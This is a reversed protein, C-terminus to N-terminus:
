HITLLIILLCASVHRLPSNVDQAYTPCLRHLVGDDDEGGAVGGEGDSGAAAAGEAGGAEDAASALRSPDGTGGRSPPASGPLSSADAAAGGNNGDGFRRANLSSFDALGGGGGPARKEGLAGIGAEAEAGGGGIGASTAVSEERMSALDALLKGLLRAAITSGVRLKDCPAVGYENPVVAEALARSVRHLERGLPAPLLGANHTADYRRQPHLHNLTLIFFRASRTPSLLLFRSPSSIYLFSGLRFASLRDVGIV